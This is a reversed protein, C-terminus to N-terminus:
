VNVPPANPAGACPLATLSFRLAPVWSNCIGHPTVVVYSTFTDRTTVSEM